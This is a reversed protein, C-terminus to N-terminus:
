QLIRPDGASYGKWMATACVPRRQFHLRRLLVPREKERPSVAKRKKEPWRSLMDFTNRTPTESPRWIVLRMLFIAVWIAATRKTSSNAHIIASGKRCALHFTTAMPICRGAKENDSRSPTRQSQRLPPPLQRRSTSLELSWTIARRKKLYGLQINWGPFMCPLLSGTLSVHQFRFPNRIIQLIHEWSVWRTISSHTHIWIATTM